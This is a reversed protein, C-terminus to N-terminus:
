ETYDRRADPGQPGLENQIALEVVAHQGEGGGSRADRRPELRVLVGGSKVHCRLLSGSSGETSNEEVIHAVEVGVKL